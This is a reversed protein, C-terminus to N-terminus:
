EGAKEPPLTVQDPSQLYGMLDRVQENTLKQLLGDPMMSVKSVSREEIQDKPIVVSETATQITLADGDEQKVLGLFSRGDTTLVAVTQYDRGILAHPAVIRTLLYTLDSRQLGTLDPGITGGEGFLRHCNACHAAYVQSGEARDAAALYEKTLIRQYDRIAGAAAEPTPQITAFRTGMYLVNEARHCQICGTELNKLAVDLNEAIRAKIAELVPPISEKLFPEASKARKPRREIALRLSLEIKETQYKLYDWNRNKAALLLEDYRYGIETMSVDLGRLHREIQALTEEPTGKLWAASPTEPRATPSATPQSEGALRSLALGFVAGIVFAVLAIASIRSKM